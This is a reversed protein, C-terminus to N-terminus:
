CFLVSVQRQRHEALRREQYEESQGGDSLEQGVGWAAHLRRRRLRAPRERAGRVPLLPRRGSPLGGSFLLFFLLLYM